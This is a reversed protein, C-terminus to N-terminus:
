IQVECRHSADYLNVMRKLVCGLPKLDSDGWAIYHPRVAHAKELTEPQCEPFVLVVRLEDLLDSLYVIEMLDTHEAAYLVAVSANLVPRQLRKRLEKISPIIEIDGDSVTEEVVQRLRAGIQKDEPLYLILSM